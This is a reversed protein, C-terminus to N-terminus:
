GLLGASKADITVNNADRTIADKTVDRHVWDPPSWALEHVHGDDGQYYVRPNGNLTTAALDTGAVTTPGSATITCVALVAMLIATSMRTM